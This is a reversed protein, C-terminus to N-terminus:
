SQKLKRIIAYAMPTGLLAEIVIKVVYQGLMLQFLQAWPMTGAFAVTIFIGTDFLQGVISSGITRVFLKNQPNRKKMRDLVYSNIFEGALYALFSGACIRPVAGLIVEYATQNEWFPASPLIQGLMFFAVMVLNCAFGLWIIHRAYKYGWLETIVDGLMFCFPYLVVAAPLIIGGIMIMKTAMINSILLFAIFLGCIIDRRDKIGRDALLETRANNGRM